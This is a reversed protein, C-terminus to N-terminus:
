KDNAVATLWNQLPPQIAEPNPMHGENPITVFTVRAGAAELLPVGKKAAALNGDKEGNLVLVPCGKAISLDVGQASVPGAAIISYGRYKGRAARTFGCYNVSWGGMSTGSLFVRKEDVGYKDNILKCVKDIYNLMARASAPDSPAGNLYSLGVIIYGKGNTGWLWPWTTASDGSGHLHLIMPWKLGPKYDSPLYVVCPPARHAPVRFLGEEGPEVAEGIARRRAKWVRGDRDINVGDRPGYSLKPTALKRLVKAGTKASEIEARIELESITNDATTKRVAKALAAPLDTVSVNRKVNVIVGDASVCVERDGKTDIITVEFLALGNENTKQAKKVTSGPFAGRIADAAAAPLSITTGANGDKTEDAWSIEGIAMLALGWVIWIQYRNGLFM